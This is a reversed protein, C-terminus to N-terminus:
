RSDDLLHGNRSTDAISFLYTVLLGITTCAGYQACYSPSGNSVGQAPSARITGRSGGDAHDAACDNAVTNLPRTTLSDLAYLAAGHL